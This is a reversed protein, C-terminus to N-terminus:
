EKNKSSKKRDKFEDMTEFDGQFTIMGEFEPIDKDDLESDGNDKPEKM